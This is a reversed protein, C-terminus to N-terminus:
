RFLLDEGRRRPGKLGGLNQMKGHNEQIKRKIKRNLIEFSPL